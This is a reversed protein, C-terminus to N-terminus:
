AEGAFETIHRVFQDAQEVHALHGCAGIRAVRANPLMGQIAEAYDASIVRDDEGWLILTPMSIRHLWKMLHPNYAPPYWMLRASTSRNKILVEFEEPNPTRALEKEALAQDHFLNRVLEEPSWLFIDARELGTVHIGAPAALTLSKIRSSDRVAIEMALWGGLSSGVLHVGDLGLTEIFDLYFFALDGMNDLWDPTESAGFGPHEPVLVRFQGALAEMFPLWRSAGNAGHLYLIPAGEGGTMLSVGCGAVTEVSAQHNAM